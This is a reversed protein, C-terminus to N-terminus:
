LRFNLLIRELCPTSVWNVSTNRLGIKLESSILCHVLCENDSSHDSSSSQGSATFFFFGLRSSRGGSCWGSSSDHCRHNFGGFVSSSTGGSAGCGGSGASSGSGSTSSRSSGRSCGARSGSSNGSAFISSTGGFVGSTSCSSGSAISGLLGSVSSSSGGLLRLETEESFFGGEPPKKKIQLRTAGTLCARFPSGTLEQSNIPLRFKPHAM